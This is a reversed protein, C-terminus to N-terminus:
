YYTLTCNMSKVKSSIRFLGGRDLQQVQLSSLTSTFWSRKDQNSKQKNSFSNRLKRFVFGAMYRIANKERGTLVSEHFAIPTEPLGKIAKM